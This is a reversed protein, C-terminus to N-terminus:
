YNRLLKWYDSHIQEDTITDIIRMDIYNTDKNFLSFPYFDEQTGQKYESELILSDNVFRQIKWPLSDNKLMVYDVKMTDILENRYYIRLLNKPDRDTLGIIRSIVLERTGFITDFINETKFYVDFRDCIPGISGVKMKPSGNRQGCYFGKVFYTEGNYEKIMEQVDLSDFYFVPYYGYASTGYAMAITANGYFLLKRKSTDKALWKRIIEDEIVLSSLINLRDEQKFIIYFFLLNTLIIVIVGFLPIKYNIKSFSKIKAFFLATQYLFLAGLFSMVPLVVLIFRHQVALNFDASVASFLILYQPSLLLLFLTIHLYKISFNGEKLPTAPVFDGSPTHKKFEKIVLIILTILGFLALWTFYPMFHPNLLSGFSSITMINFNIIINEILHGYASYGGGQLNNNREVSLTCLIPICFFSLTALFISFQSNLISLTYYRCKQYLKQQFSKKENQLNKFETFEPESLLPLYCMRYFAVGIFAFLCLVTESRTQAFFALTLALLLWHRTTSRDYTWKLFLLSLAFM